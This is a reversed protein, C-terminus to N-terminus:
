CIKAKKWSSVIVYPKGLKKKTIEFYVDNTVFEESIYFSTVKVPHVPESDMYISHKGSFGMNMDGGRVLIMKIVADGVKVGLAEPYEAEDRIILKTNADM